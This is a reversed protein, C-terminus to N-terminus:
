EAGENGALEGAVDDATEQADAAVARANEGAEAADAAQQTGAAEVAKAASQGPQKEAQRASLGKTERDQRAGAPAVAQQLVSADLRAAAARESDTLGTGMADVVQAKCRVYDYQASIENL